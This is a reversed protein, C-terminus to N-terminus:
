RDEEFVDHMDAPYREAEGKLAERLIRQHGDLEPSYAPDAMEEVNRLRRVVWAVASAALLVAVVGGTLLWSGHSADDLFAAMEYLASM